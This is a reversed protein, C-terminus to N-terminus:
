EVGVNETKFRTRADKLWRAHEDFVNGSLLSTIVHRLYPHPKDAFLLPPLMGRYFSEVMTLFTDAGRRVDEEWAGFRPKSVDGARLAADIADAAHFGGHMALHAGTSFLPDIFGASDGVALWGDGSLDRVKFSFDATARAPWLQTAHELFRTAVPSEQIALAFLQEASEGKHARSWAGQVVVGVSTRGDKFPIFWFWGAPEAGKSADWGFVVIQIDGAREGEDRWVGEWHSFLAMTDLSPIRTTARNAHALLAERGTADVVVRADERHERGEPDRVDVGVARSGDFRVRTVSTGENVTAGLAEARRLLLEDFADRPVQYANKREAQFADAFDFRATRGTASDHFNAGHKRIFRADVEDLVGIAELVGMTQPLLSEGLHFRPFRDREFVSVSRGKQALRAAVVAGGPGGGIVVVEAM